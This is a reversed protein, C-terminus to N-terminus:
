VELFIISKFKGTFKFYIVETLNWAYRTLLEGRDTQRGSDTRAWKPGMARDEQGGPAAPASLSPQLARARAAPPRGLEVSQPGRQVVLM